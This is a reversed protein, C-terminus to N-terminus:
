QNNSGTRRIYRCMIYGESSVGSKASFLQITHRGPAMPLIEVFPLLKYAPARRNRNPRVVGDVVVNSAGEGYAIIEIFVNTDVVDIVGRLAESGPSVGVGFHRFYFSYTVQNGAIHVTDVANITKGTLKFRAQGTAGQLEGRFVVDGLEIYSM